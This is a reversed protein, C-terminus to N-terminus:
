SIGKALPLAYTFPMSQLRSKAAPYENVPSPLREAVAVCELADFLSSGFPRQSFLGRFTAETEVESLDCAWLESALEELDQRRIRRSPHISRYANAIQAAQEAVKQALRYVSTFTFARILFWNPLLDEYLEFCQLLQAPSSAAGLGFHQALTPVAGRLDGFQRMAATALGQYRAEEEIELDPFGIAPRPPAVKQLVEAFFAEEEGCSRIEAISAALALLYRTRIAHVFDGARPHLVQAVQWCAELRIRAGSGSTGEMYLERHHSSFRTPPIWGRNTGPAPGLSRALELAKQADQRKLSKSELRQALAEIEVPDLHDEAARRIRPNWFRETFPLRKVAEVLGQGKAASIRGSTVLNELAHRLEVLAVTLPRYALEESAHVLAVEDDGDLRGERFWEFVQGVGVMGESELEVARLAGLSAGGIVRVGAALVYILEKHTVAPVSYYYGDLFVLIDPREGLVKLFDGRRAPARVEVSALIEEWRSGKAGALSPGAFVFIRSM